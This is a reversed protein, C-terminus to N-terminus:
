TLSNIFTFNNIEEILLKDGPNILLPCNKRKRNRKRKKITLYVNTSFKSISSKIQTVQFLKLRFM